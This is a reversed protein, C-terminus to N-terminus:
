PTEKCRVVGDANAGASGRPEPRNRLCAVAHAVIAALQTWALSLAVGAGKNITGSSTTSRDRALARMARAAAGAAAARCPM